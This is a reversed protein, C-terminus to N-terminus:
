LVSDDEQAKGHVELGDQGASLFGEGDDQRSNGDGKNSGTRVLAKPKSRFIPIRTPTPEEMQPPDAMAAVAGMISALSSSTALDIETIKRKLTKAAM